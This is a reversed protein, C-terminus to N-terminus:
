DIPFSLYRTAHRDRILFLVKKSERSANLAKAFGSVSKVSERNVEIILMGPRLGAFAAPTGPEVGSVLVGDLENYGLQDALEATPEQVSLGLKNLIDHQTLDGTKAENISGLKVKISHRKGKRIVSLDIDTGPTTLAIMNRFHGVDKVPKGDPLNTNRPRAWKLFATGSFGGSCTMRSSTSPITTSSVAALPNM